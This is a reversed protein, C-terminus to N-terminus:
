YSGVYHPDSLLVHRVRVGCGGYNADLLWYGENDMSVILGVHPLWVGLRASWYRYLALKGAQPTGSALLMLDDMSPLKTGLHAKIFAYCNCTDPTALPVKEIETTTAM